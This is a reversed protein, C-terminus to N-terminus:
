NLIAAPHVFRDARQQEDCRQELRRGGGRPSESPMAQDHAASEIQQRRLELREEILVTFLHDDPRDIRIEPAVDAPFVIRVM